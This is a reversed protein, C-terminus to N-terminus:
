RLANARRLPDLETLLDARRLADVVLDAYLRAGEPTPHTRDSNLLDPHRAAAAHWDLLTVNPHEAAAERLAENVAGEWPDPVYATVLIVHRHGAAKLLADIQARTFRGNTGLDVLLNERLKGHRRLREVVDDAHWMQRGVKGDIWIDPLRKTLQPAAALLVSDGVATVTSGNEAQGAARPGPPRRAPGHRAPAHDARGRGVRGQDARAHHAAAAAQEGAEIQDRLTGGPPSMVVGALAVIAVGCCAGSAAWAPRVRPRYALVRGAARACAALGNRRVPGEVYRYSAAALGLTLAVVVLRAAWTRSAQAGLVGAAIQIVPWHWLYVGYSRLGVWRLPRMGFVRSLPTPTDSVAFLLLGAALVALALGGRYTFAALSDLLGIAALVGALGLLGVLQVRRGGRLVSPRPLLALLAGALLGAAHTGTGYYVRSPDTGSQFVLGMALVSALLAAVVALILRRGRLWRLGVMLAIPWLLYFQEEVALSWLHQLVSPPAFRAFYSQDQAIQWWNSTYTAAALVDGRLGVLRDRALVTVAAVTVVLMTALAPLLRRARRLWFRGLRLRGTERRERVCLGTILFGSIVFFVDVGVFGGSMGPVGLHYGVVAAVALARVGDIGPLYAHGRRAASAEPAHAM